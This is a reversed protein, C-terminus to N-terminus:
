GGSDPSLLNKNNLSDLRYSMTMAAWLFNDVKRAKSEGLCQAEEQDSGM